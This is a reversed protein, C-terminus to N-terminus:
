EGLLPPLKMFSVLYGGVICAFFLVCLSFFNGGPLGEDGILSILLAWVMLFTLIFLIYKALNGHPPCMIGYKFRQCRTPNSPLPHYKTRMPRTCSYWCRALWECKCRSCRSTSTVEGGQEIIIEETNVNNATTGTNNASNNEAMRINDDGSSHTSAYTLTM